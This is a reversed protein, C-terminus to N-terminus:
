LGVIKPEPGPRVLLRGRGRWFLLPGLWRRGDPELPVRVMLDSGRLGPPTSGLEELARVELQRVAVMREVPADDGPGRRRDQTLRDIWWRRPRERLRTSVVPDALLEELAAEDGDRIARLFRLLVWRPQDHGGSASAGATTGAVPEDHPPPSWAPPDWATSPARAEAPATRDRAAQGTCGVSGVAGAMALAVLLM